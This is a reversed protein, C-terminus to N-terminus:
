ATVWRYTPKKRRQRRVQTSRTRPLILHSLFSAASDVEVVEVEVSDVEAVEAEVFDVVLAEVASDVEAFAVVSAVVSDVDVSVEAFGM